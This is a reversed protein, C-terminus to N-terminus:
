VKWRQVPMAAVVCRHLLNILPALGIFKAARWLRAEQRIRCCWALFRAQMRTEILPSQKDAISKALAESSMFALNPYSRLAGEVVRELEEYSREASTPDDMFNFRHMELLTPRGCRTKVDLAEVAQEASHGKVPEFYDNRVLYILGEPTRMGNLISRSPPILRGSGDRGEFRGGPTVIVRVGYKAWAREVDRTWVFTPPVVVVPPHAFVKSFFSVEEKVASEIQEWSHPKSPHTSTDVWRSQLPSPLDETRPFERNIWASVTGNENAVSMLTPSWYHEKGHLQVSFIGLSVGEQISELIESFRSDALTLEAYKKGDHDQIRKHDPIALIIGLTVVPHSGSADHYKRLTKILQLLSRAQIVEGPGWDDSEFILIPVRFVPERWFGILLNRFIFGFLTWV